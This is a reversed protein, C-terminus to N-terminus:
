FHPNWYHRQGKPYSVDVQRQMACYPMPAVTDMLVSGLERFARAAREGEGETGIDSVLAAVFKGGDPSPIIAAMLTLNDSAELSLDRFRQLVTKSMEFPFVILGGLPEWVPQLQFELSTVVGFNGGGGRLAWFLDSRFLM